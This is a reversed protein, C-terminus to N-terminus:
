KVMIYRIITGTSPVNQPYFAKKFEVPINNINQEQSYIMKCELTIPIEKIAPSKVEVGEVVTLNCDQFKNIDKGTKSGCYSIAKIIEPTRETPISITFEKSAEIQSHSFRSKRVYASFFLKRWEIGIQGWAITMTNIKDKNKTNLLIGKQLESMIKPLYEIVDIKQM